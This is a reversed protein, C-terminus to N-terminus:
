FLFYPIRFIKFNHNILNKRNLFIEISIRSGKRKEFTRTMCTSLCPLYNNFYIYFFVVVVFVFGFVSLGPFGTAMTKLYICTCASRKTIIRAFKGQFIWEIIQIDNRYLRITYTDYISFLKSSRVNSFEMAVVLYNNKNFTLGLCITQFDEHQM